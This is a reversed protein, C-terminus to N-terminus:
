PLPVTWVSNCGPNALMGGELAPHEGIRAAEM